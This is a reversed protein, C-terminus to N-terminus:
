MDLPPYYNEAGIRLVEELWDTGYATLPDQGPELLNWAQRRHTWNDPHLRAAERFHPIADNAAGRRALHQGLEFHAAALAIERSRPASRRLVEDPTLAFRSSAGLAVWDRLAAVYREPEFRIKRAEALSQHRRPPADEPLKADRISELVIRNPCAPEPPRVIVGHEDIWTGSPVNTVGLLADLAHAHDILSPHQPAAAEISARVADAGRTDLAM